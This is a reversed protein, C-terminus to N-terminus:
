KSPKSSVYPISVQPLIGNLAALAMGYNTIPVHQAEALAARNQVIKRQFMCAGCHIVLDYDTLNTPFDLGSHFHITLRDGLKKRLLTPLLVRGIDEKKAAHTCAEAILISADPPLQHLLYAGDLFLNPDGKYAAQLISFSTLQSATPVQPLVDKFVRSDTIVLAPEQHLQALAHAMNEVTCCFPLAGKDILERLTQVQPLILRGKPASEDQPMVLLVVDGSKVLNGTLTQEQDQQTEAKQSVAEYLTEISTKDYISVPLPRQKIEKEIAFLAQSLGESYRDSQSLIAITPIARESLKQWWELEVEGHGPPFLLIALEIAEISQEALKAREAGLTTPDWFGPTDVLVVAGLGPWEMPKRVPDTTTGPQDSVLAAQQQTLANLLASKGSNTRGLLAIHIRETLPTHSM